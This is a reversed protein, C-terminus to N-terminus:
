TLKEKASQLFKLDLSKLVSVDISSYLEVALQYQGLKFAQRAKDLQHRLISDQDGQERKELYKIILKDLNNPNEILPKAYKDLITDRVYTLANRCEEKTSFMWKSTDFSVGNEAMAYNIGIGKLKSCNNCGDLCFGIGVMLIFCPYDELWYSVEMYLRGNYFVVSIRNQKISSLGYSSLKPNLVEQCLDTFHSPKAEDWTSKM